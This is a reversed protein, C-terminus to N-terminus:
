VKNTQPFVITRENLNLSNYNTFLFITQAWCYCVTGQNFMIMQTVPTRLLVTTPSQRKLLGPTVYRSQFHDDPHSPDQSPTSHSQLHSGCLNDFRWHKEPSWDGMHNNEILSYNSHYNLHLFCFKLKGQFCMNSQWHAVVADVHLKRKKRQVQACSSIVNKNWKQNSGQSTGKPISSPLTVFCAM